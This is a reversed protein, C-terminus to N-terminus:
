RGEPFEAAARMIHSAELMELRAANRELQAIHARLERLQTEQQRTRAILAERKAQAEQARNLAAVGEAYVAAAEPDGAEAAARVRDLHKLHEAILDSISRDDSM